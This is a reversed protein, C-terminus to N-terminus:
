EIDVDSHSYHEFGDCDDSNMELHDVSTVEMYMGHSTGMKFGNIKEIKTQSRHNFSSFFSGDIAIRLDKPTFAIAMRFQQDLIFPFGGFREEVGFRFITM